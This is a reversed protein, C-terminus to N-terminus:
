ILYTPLCISISKLYIHDWSILLLLLFGSLKIYVFRTMFVRSVIDSIDFAFFPLLLM